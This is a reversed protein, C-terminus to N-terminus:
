VFLQQLLGKKWLKTKELLTNTHEIKFDLSTLFNAIKTQEKKSPVKIAIKKIESGSVATFTSGQEISGWKLEYDLLFQYLFEIDTKKNNRISCVGRGICADHISKAVAGVPARVTVILDGIKCLKTPESTWNRPNTKRHSIDANGQILPMGINESNYSNSNPSQGMTIESVDGLAQVEWEPFENGNEDKFRIEQNFIKQMVGKKYQEFLTKKKTLQEIKTDVAKLFSAIKQQEPLSPIEIASSSVIGWDARPMKSGSSKNVSEMFKDTQIIQYLYENTIDIGKLVWIESSCVGDFNALFYKRLYPRLKGFLVDGDSFKNKISGSKSSDSYGLLEGNGSGLHELEICKFSKSEKESNYKQSKSTVVDGLLKPTWSDNFESFRLKPSLVPKTNM